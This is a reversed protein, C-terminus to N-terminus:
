SISLEIPIQSEYRIRLKWVARLAQLTVIEYNIRNIRENGNDSKEMVAEKM